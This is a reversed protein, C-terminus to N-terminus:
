NRASLQRSLMSTILQNLSVGERKAAQALRRHLNRPVRQVRKGSPLPEPSEPEPATEVAELCDELWLQKMSALNTLADAEDRGHAMCVPLEEIRAIVDGDEDRDLITRYPLSMYHVLDKGLERKKMM